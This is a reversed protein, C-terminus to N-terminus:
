ATLRKGIVTTTYNVEYEPAVEYEGGCVNCTEKGEPPGEDPSYESACHPCVVNSTHSYDWEDYEKEAVRSLAEFKAAANIAGQCPGCRFGNKHGWVSGKIESRPKRCTVCVDHKDCKRYTWKPEKGNCEPCGNIWHWAGDIIDAYLEPRPAKITIDADESQLSRNGPKYFLMTSGSRTRKLDPTLRDDNIPTPTQNGM